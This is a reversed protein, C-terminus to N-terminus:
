IYNEQAWEQEKTVIIREKLDSLIRNSFNSFDSELIKCFKNIISSEEMNKNENFLNPPTRYMTRM